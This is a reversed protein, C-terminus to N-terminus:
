GCPETEGWNDNTHLVVLQMPEPLATPVPVPTPTPAKTEVFVPSVPSLPSTLADGIEMRGSPSATPGCAAVILALVMLIATWLTIRASTM